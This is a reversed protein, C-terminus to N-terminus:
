PLAHYLITHILLILIALVAVFEMRRIAEHTSPDHLMESTHRNM